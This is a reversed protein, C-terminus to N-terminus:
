GLPYYEDINEATILEHTVLINEAVTEGKALAIAAPVALTGYREPFYAVSGLWRSDNRISDQGSADAGHAVVWVNDGRDATDAAALATVGDIDGFPAAILIVEAGPNATLVDTFTRRINEPADAGGQAKDIQVFKDSDIEGCVREFGETTGGARQDNIDPQGPLEISVYLDYECGFESQAFEGIGTGAIIGANFNDAGVFVVGCPEEPVDMTVTPLNGYAECVAESAAAIFQWNIVVDLDQASLNRACELAEEATFNADCSFLEAGEAAAVEEINTTVQFVFADADGGSIYGIRIPDEPAATTTTADAGATTTTAGADATTTTDDSDSGCAAAVLAIAAVLVATKSRWAPRTRSSM